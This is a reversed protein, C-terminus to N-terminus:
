NNIEILWRPINLGVQKYMNLMKIFNIQFKKETKLEKAM